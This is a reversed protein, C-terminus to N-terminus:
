KLMIMRRTEVFSGAQMRYFYVGSSVTRGNNDIGTWVIQHSGASFSDNVLSKVRQGRINYVDITVPTDNAVSFSITTQPNFPNPFNTNLANVFPLDIIDFENTTDEKVRVSSIYLAYPVNGSLMEIYFGIKITGAYEKLPIKITIPVFPITSDKPIAVVLELLEDAEWKRLINDSSWTKGNDTSIVIVFKATESIESEWFELDLLALDVQLELDKDNELVISPTIYWEHNEKMFEGDIEMLWHEYFLSPPLLEYENWDDDFHTL